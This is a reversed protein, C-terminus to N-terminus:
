GSETKEMKSCTSVATETVGLPEQEVWLLDPRSLAILPKVEILPQM